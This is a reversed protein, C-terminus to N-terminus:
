APIPPTSTHPTQPKSRSFPAAARSPSRFFRLKDRTITRSLSPVSRDFFSEPSRRASSRTRFFEERNLKCGWRHGIRLPLASRDPVPRICPERCPFRRPAISQVPPHSATRDRNRSFTGFFEHCGGPPCPLRCDAPPQL